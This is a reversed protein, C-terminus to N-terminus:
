VLLEVNTEESEEEKMHFQAYCGSVVRQRTVRAKGACLESREAQKQRILDKVM